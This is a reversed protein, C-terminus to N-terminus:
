MTRPLKGAGPGRARHYTMARWRCCVCLEKDLVTEATGQRRRFRGVRAFVQECPGADVIGAYLVMTMNLAALMNPNPSIVNVALTQECRLTEIARRTCERRRRRIANARRTGGPLAARIRRPALGIRQRQGASRATGREGIRTDYGDPLRLIMEDAGSIVRSGSNSGFDSGRRRAINTAVTGDARAVDQPLGKIYRGLDDLIKVIPAAGDLRVLGAM